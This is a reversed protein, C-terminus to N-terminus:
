DPIFDFFNLKEGLAEGWIDKAERFVPKSWMFNVGKAYGAVSINVKETARREDMSTDCDKSLGM